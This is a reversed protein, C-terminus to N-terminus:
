WRKRMTHIKTNLYSFYTNNACVDHPISSFRPFTQFFIQMFLVSIGIALRIIGISLKLRGSELHNFTVAATEDGILTDNIRVGGARILKRAESKSPVLGSAFVLEFAPIGNALDAAPLEFHPLGEPAEGSEFTRRATEAAEAAASDGHCLRTAETALLVKADNLEM